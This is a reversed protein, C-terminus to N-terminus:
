CSGSGGFHTEVEIREGRDVHVHTHVDIAVLNDLDLQLSM